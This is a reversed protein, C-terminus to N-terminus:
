FQYPQEPNAAGYLSNLLLTEQYLEDTINSYFSRLDRAATRVGNEYVARFRALQEIMVTATPMEKSLRFCEKDADDNLVYFHMDRPSNPFRIVISSATWKSDGNAVHITQM